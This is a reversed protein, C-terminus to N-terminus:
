INFIPSIIGLGVLGALFAFLGFVLVVVGVTKFFLNAHKSHAFSSAGFSLFLLMPLTGLSFAFMILMGSIFSGTSLASFQMAQTFGCPLFFTAFGLILPTFTKHEIKRFFNFISSLIFNSKSKWIGLLNIGLSIMVVAALIGLVSSLTFSIGILGGLAGLLGGLIAFSVIRGVHFLTITKTDKINDQSIKASLSLILGGVIALCSSVSAILGIIFSTIPTIQGGIGFNLIGTKQVVFFLIILSLGLPIAKLLTKDFHNKKEVKEISLFYGNSEIKKSLDKVLVEPDKDENISIEVIEKKLDVKVDQVFDEENLVDEIYIKCSPCHTGSVNFIYKNMTNNM